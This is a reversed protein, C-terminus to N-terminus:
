GVPRSKGVGDAVLRYNLMAFGPNTIDHTNVQHICAAQALGIRDVFLACVIRVRFIIFISRFIDFISTGVRLNDSKLVSYMLHLVSHLVLHLKCKTNGKTRHEINRGLALPLSNRVGPRM